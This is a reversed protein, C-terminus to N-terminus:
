NTTCSAGTAQIIGKDILGTASPTPNNTLNVIDGVGLTPVIKISSLFLDVASQTLLNSSINYDMNSAINLGIGGDFGNISNSQATFQFLRNNTSLSPVSGTLNNFQTTFRLLQTNSSLSPISGSLQNIHLNVIQLATNASFSPINGSLSNGNLVLDVLSVNSAFSPITGTLLNLNLYLHTLNTNLSFSPITGTIDNDILYLRRLNPKNSYSPMVGTLLNSILYIEELNVNEVLSPISGSIRNNRADLITLNIIESVNFSTVNRSGNFILENGGSVNSVIITRPTNDLYDHQNLGNILPSTSGDGWDISGSIGNYQFSARHIGGNSNNQDLGNTTFSFSPLKVNVTYNYISTCGKNDTITVSYAGPSLGSIDKTTAGNSWVYTYPSTGGSISLNISGNTATSDTIVATAVISNSPVVVTHSATISASDTVTVSYTGSPVQIDSTTDGNNWLYSYPAQGGSVTINAIGEENCTSPITKSTIVIPSKDICSKTNRIYVEDNVKTRFAISSSKDKDVKITKVARDNIYLTSEIDCCDPCIVFRYYSNDALSISSNSMEYHSEFLVKGKDNILKYM